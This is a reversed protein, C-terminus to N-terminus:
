KKLSKVHNHLQNIQSDSLYSIPYIKPYVNNKSLVFKQQRYNEFPKLSIACCEFLRDNIVIGVWSHPGHSNEGVLETADMKMFYNNLLVKMLRAKGQCVGNRNRYTGLPESIYTPCNPKLQMKRNRTTVHESAFSIKLNELYETAILVKDYETLYNAHYNNEVYRNFDKAVDKLHYADHLVRREFKGQLKILTDDSLWMLKEENINVKGKALVLNLEKFPKGVPNRDITLNIETNNSHKWNLENLLANYCTLARDSLNFTISNINLKNLEHLLRQRALLDEKSQIIDEDYITIYFPLVFNQNHLNMLFNYIKDYSLELRYAKFTKTGEPVPVKVTSIDYINKRVANKFKDM